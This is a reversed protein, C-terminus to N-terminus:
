SAAAYRFMKWKKLLEADDVKALAHHGGTSAKTFEDYQRRTLTGVLGRLRRFMAWYDVIGHHALPKRRAIAAERKNALEYARKAALLHRSAEACREFWRIDALLETDPVGALLELFDCVSYDNAMLYRLNQKHTGKTQDSVRPGCYRGSDTRGSLFTPISEIIFASYSRKNVRFSVSAPNYLEFHANDARPVRLSALISQFFPDVQTTTETVGLEAVIGVLLDEALDSNAM